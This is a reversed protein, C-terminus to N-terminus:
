ADLTQTTHRQAIGQECRVYDHRVLIEAYRQQHEPTPERRPHDLHYQIAVNKSGFLTSGINRARVYLDGDEGWYSRYAENYGNISHLLRTSISFNSGLLDHVRDRGLWRRFRAPAIRVARFPRQTDHRFVSRILEKWWAWGSLRSPRLAQTLEPGLDIRRGMFLTPGPGRHQRGHDKLFHPHVFTDGDLCVTVPHQEANLTAFVNNNIESKRYGTDPHWTHTVRVGRNKFMPRYADILARTGPTSGDDAVYIDFTRYSQKLLSEFHLGLARPDNYTTVVVAIRPRTEPKVLRYARYEFPRWGSFHEIVDSLVKKLDKKWSWTMPLHQWDWKWNQRSIRDWMFKPHTERFERLGWFRKYRYNDGTAGPAAHYLGDMFLTKEQMAEPKRVWGYHFVPTPVIVGRLKSGDPKRFSQADGVSVAGSIRKFARVERRYASRTHQFTSYNGYLHIYPFVLAEIREDFLYKRMLGRLIPAASEHLVEDAQLYILWDGTCLKAARNTEEALVRGGQRKEPSEWDWRTEVFRVKPNQGFAERLKPLSEDGPSGPDVAIVMEDVLPLLSQVSELYPYDFTHGNRLITFGSLKM